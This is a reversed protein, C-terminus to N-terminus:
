QKSMKINGPIFLGNRKSRIRGPCIAKNWRELCGDGRSESFSSIIESPWKSLDTQKSEQLHHTFKQGQSAATETWIVQWNGLCFFNRVSFAVFCPWFNWQNQQWLVLNMLGWIKIRTKLQPHAKWSHVAYTNLFGKGSARWCQRLAAFFWLRIKKLKRAGYNQLSNACYLIHFHSLKVAGPTFLFCLWTKLAVFSAFHKNERSCFLRLAKRAFLVSFKSKHSVDLTREPEFKPSAPCHVFVCAGQYWPAFLNSWASKAWGTDSLNWHIDSPVLDLWFRFIPAFEPVVDMPVLIGGGRMPLVSKIQFKQLKREVCSSLNHQPWFRKGSWTAHGENVCRGTIQAAFGYSAFTHETMKPAGTTGSTFFITM